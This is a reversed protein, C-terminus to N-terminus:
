KSTSASSTTSVYDRKRPLPQRPGSCRRSPLFCTVVAVLEQELRQHHRVTLESFQDLRASRIHLHIGCTRTRSLRDACCLIPEFDTSTLADDNDACINCRIFITEFEEPCSEERQACRRDYGSRCLGGCREICSALPHDETRTCDTQDDLVGSRTERTTAYGLDLQHTRVLAVASEMRRQHIGDRDRLLQAHRRGSAAHVSECSPPARRSRQSSYM